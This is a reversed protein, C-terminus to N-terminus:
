SDLGVSAVDITPPRQLAELTWFRSESRRDDRCRATVANGAVDRLHAFLRLAVTATNGHKAARCHRRVRFTRLRTERFVATGESDVPTKESAFGTRIGGSREGNKQEQSNGRLLSIAQNTM